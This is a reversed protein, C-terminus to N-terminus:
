YGGNARVQITANSEAASATVTVNTVSNTVSATYGTRAFEFAPTLTGASIALNSLYANSSPARDVTITYSRVTIGDEATVQIDITNTGVDLPLDPSSLGSGVVVYPGDNIRVRITATDDAATPTVYDSTTENGTSASYSTTAPSFGPTLPGSFLLLSNLYANTSPARDVTVTYTRVTTGDQATVQVDIANTGTNVPLWASWNGSTVPMFAGGNVRVQINAHPESSTPLVAVADSSSPVSCTYSFVDKNFAPVLSSANMTLGVLSADASPPMALSADDGYATGASNSAVLRYHYTRGTELGGIGQAVPVASGNNAGVITSGSTSGYGTTLGYEFWATTSQYNPLVSGHLTAATGSVGSAGLTAVVPIGIPATSVIWAPANNLSGNFSAGYSSLNATSAGSGEDLRWYGVLNAESGTLSQNMMAQIESGSKAVNWLTVEDLTCDLTNGSYRGFVLSTGPTCAQATGNWAHSTQLVGDQYLRGGAGDVVLAVHHWQGDAVYGGALANTGNLVSSTLSRAYAGYLYGNRVTLAYGNTPTSSTKQLIGRYTSDVQSTLVWAALTLPYSNLATNHPVSVNNNLLPDFGLSYGPGAQVPVPRGLFLFALSVTAFLAKPSFRNGM